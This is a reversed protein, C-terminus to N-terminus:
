FLISSAVKFAGLLYWGSFMLLWFKTVEIGVQKCVLKKAQVNIQKSVKRCVKRCQLTFHGTIVALELDGFLESTMWKIEM